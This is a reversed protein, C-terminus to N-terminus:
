TSKFNYIPKVFHLIDVTEKINELIIDKDKYAMPAEDLTSQVATTTYVGEMEKEFEQMDLTSKAKNRSLIRGAGHPASYNYKKSGKGKAIILGDRMNFPIVVKEDKNASIAGKRIIRDQLNIYNHVTDIEELVEFTEVGNLYSLIIKMINKRNFEAYNQAIRMYDLYKDYMLDSKHIFELGEFGEVFHNKLKEKAYDQFYQAIKLGFNRSGTHITIWVYGDEDKGAEIFHNGGGLTGISLLVNKIDLGIHNCNRELYDEYAKNDFCVENHKKFGSPINTKIFNDLGKLDIDKLDTKVSLMGCGIDVGVINPIIYDNLEMTFGIVSGAGAHCDPMIAIYSKSFVPCNLMGQIQDKTTQDIEDIMINASNYRGKMTIM